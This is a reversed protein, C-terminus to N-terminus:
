PPTPRRFRRPGPHLEDLTRQIAQSTQQAMEDSPAHSFEECLHALRRQAAERQLRGLVEALIRGPDSYDDDALLIERLLAQAEPDDGALRETADLAFRGSAEPLEEEALLRELWGQLRADTILSRVDPQQRVQGVLDPKELLCRLLAQEPAPPRDLKRQLAEARLDRAARGGASAMQRRVLDEPVEILQAVLSIDADRSIENPNAQVVPSLQELAWIRRELPEPPGDTSSMLRAALHRLAPRASEVVRRLAEPGDRCVVDDPDMGSPLTAIVVKLGHRVLIECGRLTAKEGAADADYLLVVKSAQRRLLKAQAETLATGLSAVAETVGAGHAALVDMQGECLVAQGRERISDKALHYAYLINGKTYIPTEPSNVYKPSDPLAGELVRGSFAVPRGLADWIPFMVRDRFADFVRDKGEARRVMGAELLTQDRFGKGRLFSLLADWADPAYGLEFRETLEPALRRHDIYEQARAGSERGGLTRRFFDRALRCVERLTDERSKADAAAKPSVGLYQQFPINLRGALLELAGRFDLNEIKEVFRIADGGAKCAFCHYLRRDPDVHLSPKTDQHFPCLGLWKAGRQRLETHGSILDVIDVEERLRAALDRLTPM